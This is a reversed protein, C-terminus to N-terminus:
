FIGEHEIHSLMLGLVLMCGRLWHQFFSFLFFALAYPHLLAPRAPNKGGGGPRIGGGMGGIQAGITTRQRRGRPRQATNGWPSQSVMDSNEMTILSKVARVM